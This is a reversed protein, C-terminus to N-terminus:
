VIYIVFNYKIVNMRVIIIFVDGIIVIIVILIAKKLVNRQYEILLLFIM